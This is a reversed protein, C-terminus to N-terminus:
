THINICIYIYLHYLNPGQNVTPFFDDSNKTPVGFLILYLHISYVYIIYIKANQNMRVM